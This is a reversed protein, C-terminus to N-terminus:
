YSRRRGKTQQYWPKNNRPLKIVPEPEYVHYRIIEYNLDGTGGSHDIHGPTGVDPFLRSDMTVGGAISIVSKGNITTM